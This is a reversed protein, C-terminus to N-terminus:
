NIITLQQLAAIRKELPPHSMFFAMFGEKLNSSIGFAVMSDPMDNTANQQGDLLKQLAKIMNQRGALKAGAYDAAYERRRSFWMVIASALFGLVMESLIVGLYYGMNYSSYSDSSSSSRNSLAASIAMGILRAAFMVFTNIVGQILSLTVMDGNSVHGIEHALVARIEDKSFSALLGESVAVLANNKSFGTAFANPSASSFIGVEPMGIGEAQALQEVTQLLWKEQESSPHEIVRTGTANKAMWKSILLSVLSGGCGFMACMILLGLMTNSQVGLISMTISAIVLIALNTALFLGIRLM